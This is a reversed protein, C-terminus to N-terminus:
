QVKVLLFEIDMSFEGVTGCNNRVAVLAAVFWSMKAGNLSDLYTSLRMTAFCGRVSRKCALILWLRNASPSESTVRVCGPCDRLPYRAMPNLCDTVTLPHQRDALARAPYGRSVFDADRVERCDHPQRKATGRLSGEEHAIKVAIEYERESM